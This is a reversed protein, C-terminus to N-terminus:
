LYMRCVKNILCIEYCTMIRCIYTLVVHNLIKLVASCEKKVAIPIHCSKLFMKRSLSLSIDCLVVDLEICDITDLKTDLCTHTSTNICNKLCSEEFKCVDNRNIICNLIHLICCCGAVHLFTFIDNLLIM